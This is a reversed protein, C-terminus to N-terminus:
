DELLFDKIGNNQYLRNLKKLAKNEIQRVRERTINYKKGITDLTMPENGNLGFRLELIEKERVSLSDLIKRLQGKLDKDIIVQDTNPNDSQIYDQLENYSEDFDLNLPTNLSTVSYYNRKYFSILNYENESINLEKCLEKIDIEENMNLLDNELTSIRNIKEYIYAPLRLTSSKNMIARDMQQNIWYYIYTSFSTNRSLDFKDIGNIIGIVGEQILDEFTFSTNSNMRKRAAMYVLGLNNIIIQNRTKISKDKNYSLLLQKNSLKIKKNTEIPNARM